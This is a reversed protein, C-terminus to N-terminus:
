AAQARLGAAIDRNINVLPRLGEARPDIQLAVSQKFIFVALTGLNKKIPAPLPNSDDAVASALVTWLKRNYALAEELEDRRREFDDHLAQLKAASKLLLSAELDRGSLTAKSASAYASAARHM